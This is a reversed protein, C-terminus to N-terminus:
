DTFSFTLSMDERYIFSENTNGSVDFHLANKAWAVFEVGPGTLIAFNVRYSGPALRVRPLAIQITLHGRETPFAPLATKFSCVIIGMYNYISFVLRANGPKGAILQVCIDVAEGAICTQLPSAEGPRTLIIEGFVYPADEREYRDPDEPRVEVSGQALLNIYTLVTEPTTGFAIQRGRDLFLARSTLQKITGVEHSVFLLTGGNRTFSAIRNICKAVFRADGVALSEDIILVDPEVSTQVTFALRMIMGSSYTKVPQDMFDGIEAFTEISEFKADIESRSLGLVTGNLYVNERGTFEPNFGSGLELLAAVRGNVNVTGASPQLTGAIIQLLTSKGSGNRGIIGVSEGKRVEFSVDKLAYFDRFQAAAQAAFFEKLPPVISGLATFIAGKLRAAPSRWIHYAKSVGQVRIVPEEIM